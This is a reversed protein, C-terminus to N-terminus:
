QGGERLRRKRMQRGKEGESVKIKEDGNEAGASKERDVGSTIAQTGEEDRHGGEM